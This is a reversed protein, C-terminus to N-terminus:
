TNFTMPITFDRQNLKSVFDATVTVDREATREVLISRLSVRPEWLVLADVIEQQVLTEIGTTQLEFLIAHLNTGYGPQMIREGKRTTLLMKVSSALIEIDEGRNWNWQDQNPYGTDKPLIPGYILPTKVPQKDIPQVYFGFNVSVTNWHPRGCDEPIVAYNHAEVRAVYQGPQLNRTADIVITGASTGNYVVPLSGDDWYLTGTIYDVPLASDEILLCQINAAGGTVPYAAVAVTEPPQEILNVGNLNTIRLSM